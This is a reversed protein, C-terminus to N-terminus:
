TSNFLTPSAAYVQSQALNCLTKSLMGGMNCCKRDQCILNTTWLDPGTLVDVQAM